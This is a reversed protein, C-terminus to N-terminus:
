REWITISIDETPKWNTFHWEITKYGTIKYGKPKIELEIKKQRLLKSVHDDLKIYFEAQEINNKWLAGPKTIFTFSSGSPYTIDTAWRIGYICEVVKEEKPKFNVSWVYMYEYKSGIGLRISENIKKKSVELEKGNIRVVFKKNIDEIEGIDKRILSPETDQTFPFGMQVIAQQKATNKFTFLGNVEDDRIKIIEKILRVNNEQIPIITNGPIEGMYVGAFVNLELIKLVVISIIYYYWANKQLVQLRKIM